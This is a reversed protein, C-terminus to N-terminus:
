DGAPPPTPIATGTQVGTAIARETARATQTQTERGFVWTIASGIFGSILLQLDHAGPELRTQYIIWFGVGIITFAIIYAFLAKLTDIM